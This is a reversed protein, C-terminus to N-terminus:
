CPNTSTLMERPRNSWDRSRSVLLRPGRITRVWTHTPESTYNATARYTRALYSLRAVSMMASLSMALVGVGIMLRRVTFRTRPLRM